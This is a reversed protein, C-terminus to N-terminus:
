LTTVSVYCTYANSIHWRLCSTCWQVQKLHIYFGNVTCKAPKSALLVGGCRSLSFVAKFGVPKCCLHLVFACAAHTTSPSSSITLTVWFPFSPTSWLHRDRQHLIPAMVACRWSHDSPLKFQIWFIERGGRVCKRDWVMESHGWKSIIDMNGHSSM